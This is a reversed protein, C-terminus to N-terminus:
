YQHSIKVLKGSFPPFFQKEGTNLEGAINGLKELIFFFSGLFLNPAIVKEKKVKKIQCTTFKQQLVHKLFFNTNKKECFLFFVWRLEFYFLIAWKMNNILSKRQMRQISFTFANSINNDFHNMIVHIFTMLFFVM